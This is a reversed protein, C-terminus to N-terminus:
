HKTKVGKIDKLEQQAKHVKKLDEIVNHSESNLITFKIGCGACFIPQNYILMEMTIPTVTSCEPCPFGQRQQNTQDNEGMTNTTNKKNFLINILEEKWFFVRKIKIAVLNLTKNFWEIRM